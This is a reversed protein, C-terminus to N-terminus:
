WFDFNEALEGCNEAGSGGLHRGIKAQKGIRGRLLDYFIVM